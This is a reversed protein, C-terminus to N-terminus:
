RAGPTRCLSRNPHQPPCPTDVAEELMIYFILKEGKLVGRDPYADQPELAVVKPLLAPLAKLASNFGKITTSYKWGVSKGQADKPNWIPSADGESRDRDYVFVPLAADGDFKYFGSKPWAQIEDVAKINTGFLTGNTYFGAYRVHAGKGATGTGRASAGASGTLDPELRQSGHPGDKCTGDAAGQATWNISAAMSTPMKGPDTPARSAGGGAFAAPKIGVRLFTENADKGALDQYDWKWRDPVRVDTFRAGGEPALFLLDVRNEGQLALRGTAPIFLGTPTECAPLSSKSGLLNGTCGSLLLLGVVALGLPLRM